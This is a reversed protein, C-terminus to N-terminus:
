ITVWLSGGMTTLLAGAYLLYAPRLRVSKRRCVLDLAIVALIIMGVMLGKYLLLGEQLGFLDMYGRVIPNAERYPTNMMGYVTFHYDIANAVIYIIGAVVIQLWRLRNEIEATKALLKNM